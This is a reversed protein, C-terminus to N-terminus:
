NKQFRNVSLTQGDSVFTCIYMGPTLMRVDISTESTTINHVAVGRGTIDTIVLQAKGATTQKVVLYDTAPNPSLTLSQEKLKTIGSTHLTDCNLVGKNKFSWGTAADEYCRFSIGYEPIFVGGMYALPNSVFGVDLIALAYNGFVLYPVTRGNITTDGKATVTMQTSDGNFIGGMNCMAISQSSGIGKEFDCVLQWVSGAKSSHVYMKLSDRYAYFSDKTLNDLVLKKCAKGDYTTSEKSVMHLPYRYGPGDNHEAYTWKTGVTAFEGYPQAFCNTQALVLLLFIYLPKM